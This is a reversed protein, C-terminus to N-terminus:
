RPWSAIKVNDFFLAVCYNTYSASWDQSYFWKVGGTDTTTCVGLSFEHGTPCPTNLDYLANSSRTVGSCSGYRYRFWLRNGSSGHSGTTMLDNNSCDTFWFAVKSSGALGEHTQLTPQCPLPPPPAGPPSPPQFDGKWWQVRRPCCYFVGSYGVGHIDKDPCRLPDLKYDDPFSPYGEDKMWSVGDDTIQSQMYRSQHRDQLRIGWGTAPMGYTAVSMGPHQTDTCPANSDFSFAFEKGYDFSILEDYYATAWMGNYSNHMLVKMGDEGRAQANPDWRFLLPVGFTRLQDQGWTRDPRVWREQNSVTATDNIDQPYWVGIIDDDSYEFLVLHPGRGLCAQRISDMNYTASAERDWCLNNVTDLKEQTITIDFQTSQGWTKTMKGATLERLRDKLGHTHWVNAGTSDQYWLNTPPPPPSMPPNPPSPPSIPPPPPTPPPPTPFGICSSVRVTDTAAVMPAEASEEFWSQKWLLRLQENAPRLTSGATEQFEELRAYKRMTWYQDTPLYIPNHINSKAPGPTPLFFVHERKQAINNTVFHEDTVDASLPYIISWGNVDAGADITAEDAGFNLWPKFSDGNPDPDASGTYPQVMNIGEAVDEPCEITDRLWFTSGVSSPYYPDTNSSRAVHLFSWESPIYSSYETLTWPCQWGLNKLRDTMSSISRLGTVPHTYNTYTANNAEGCLQKGDSNLTM